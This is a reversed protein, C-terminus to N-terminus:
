ERLDKGEEKLSERRDKDQLRLSSLGDGGKPRPLRLTTLYDSYSRSSRPLSVRFCLHLPLSHSVVM